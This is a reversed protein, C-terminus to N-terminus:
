DVLDHILPLCTSFLRTSIPPFHQRTILLTLRSPQAPVLKGNEFGYLLPLAERHGRVRDLAILFLLGRGLWTHGGSPCCRAPRPGRSFPPASQAAGPRM